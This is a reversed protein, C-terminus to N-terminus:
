ILLLFCKRRCFHFGLNPANPNLFIILKHATTTANKKLPHPDHLGTSLRYCHCSTQLNGSGAERGEGGSRKKNKRKRFGPTITKFLRSNITQGKSANSSLEEQFNEKPRGLTFDGKCLRKKLLEYFLYTQKHTMVQKPEALFAFFSFTGRCLPWSPFNRGRAPLFFSTFTTLGPPAPGLQFSLEFHVWTKESRPM